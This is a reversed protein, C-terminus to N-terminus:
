QQLVVVRAKRDDAGADVLGRMFVSLAQLHGGIEELGESEDVERIRQLQSERLTRTALHAHVFPQLQLGYSVFWVLSFRQNAVRRVTVTARVLLVIEVALGRLAATVTLPTLARSSSM